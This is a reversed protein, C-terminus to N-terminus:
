PGPVRSESANATGPPLWPEFMAFSGSFSREDAVAATCRQAPTDADASDNSAPGSGSESSASRARRPQPVSSAHLRQEHDIGGVDDTRHGVPPPAVPRARGFAEAV